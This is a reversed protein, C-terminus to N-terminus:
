NGFAVVKFITIQSTVFIVDDNVFQPCVSLCTSQCYPDTFALLRALWYINILRCAIASSHCDLKDVHTTHTNAPLAPGGDVATPRAPSTLSRPSSTTVDSRLLSIRQVSSCSSQRGNVPCKASQNSRSIMVGANTADTSLQGPQVVDCRASGDAM